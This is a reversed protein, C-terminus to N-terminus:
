QGNNDRHISEHKEKQIRYLKLTAELTSGGVGVYGYEENLFYEPFWDEMTGKSCINCITTQIEDDKDFLHWYPSDIKFYYGSLFDPLNMAAIQARIDLAQFSNIGEFIIKDEFYLNLKIEPTQLLKLM